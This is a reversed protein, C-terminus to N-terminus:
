SLFPNRITVGEIAAGNHLDETLLTDCGAEVASAILLADHFAIKYREAITRASEHMEPTLPLIPSMAAGILAVDDAIEAWSMGLKRRCVNAFENLIQVSIVGGDAMVQEAVAVKPGAPSFAYILINTDIFRRVSM